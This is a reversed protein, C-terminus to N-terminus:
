PHEAVILLSGGRKHTSCILDIWMLLIAPIFVLVLWVIVPIAMLMKGWGLMTLPVRQLLTWAIMGPKGYGHLERIIRFGAQAIRERAIEDNYGDRVHEGVTWGSSREEFEAHLAVDAPRLDRPTHMIFMGGPRTVRFFEAFTSRDDDIHEMVDVSLILDFSRSAFPLGRVDGITFTVKDKKDEFYRESTYLHERDIELGVISPNRFIGLMRDTYQGFGM